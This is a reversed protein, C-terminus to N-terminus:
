DDASATSVTSPDTDIKKTFLKRDNSTLCAGTELDFQWGHLTCTLVGDQVEGFRSLDAKLHPCRRQIMYGECEILTQDPRQEVYYGEAYQIREPSLCKFFSYLFENYQGKREAEFRCSLFIYNVWDEEHNIICYEVLAPDIVFKFRTATVGDWEYVKREIFDIVIQGGEGLDLLLLDDIGVATQDAMELIPEFWERIAPLIEVQGRPWSAKEAALADAQRAKYAECHGRKDTFIKMVEDDPMPQAVEVHGPTIELVSEPIVLHGRTFGAKEVLELFVTADPFINNPDRDFDNLHWLDDDLFCPPGASPIIHPAGIQEAYRLAREMQTVRKKSSLADKMKQPFRYVMPYWIAGSYQLFHADYPGFADFAEFDVPRSDNQNFIRVEGDDLSLGSDGLPGDAPAVLSTIMVKLGNVDLPEANRTQVFNTFGLKRLWKEVLGLPHDPLLVTTDKNVREELFKADFHDLHTHSLFLYDPNVYPSVDMQDNAPFPFWSGFYAPNFFPDCLVSGHKTEIYMGAHGLFTVRM